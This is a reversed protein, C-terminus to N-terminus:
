DNALMVKLKHIDRQLRDSGREIRLVANRVSGHSRYGLAAATEKAPYGFECRALYAAVARSADDHRSRPKWNEVDTGFYKAVGHIIGTLSPRHRLRGLQPTARDETRNSLLHHMRDIFDEAGLLLGGVADAFPSQLPKGIQECV